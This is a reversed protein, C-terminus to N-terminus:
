KTSLGLHCTRYEAMQKAKGNSAAESLHKWFQPNDVLIINFVHM